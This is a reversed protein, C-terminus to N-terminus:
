SKVEEFETNVTTELKNMRGIITSTLDKFINVGQGSQEVSADMTQVLAISNNLEKLAQTLSHLSEEKPVIKNMRDLVLDRTEVARSVYLKNSSKEFESLAPLNVIPTNLLIEERRKKSENAEKLRALRREEEKAKRNLEAIKGKEKLIKEKRKAINALRIREMEEDSIVKPKGM